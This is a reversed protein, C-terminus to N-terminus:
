SMGISSPISALVSTTTTTTTPPGFLTSSLFQLYTDTSTTLGLFDLDSKTTTTLSMGDDLSTTMVYCWDM